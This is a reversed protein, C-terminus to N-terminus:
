QSKCECRKTFGKPMCSNVFQTCNGQPDEACTVVSLYSFCTPCSYNNEPPIKTCCQLTSSQQWKVDQCMPDSGEASGKFSCKSYSSALCAESCFAVCDNTARCGMTLTISQQDVVCNECEWCGCDANFVCGPPQITIDASQDESGRLDSSVLHDSKVADIRDANLDGVRIDLRPSGKNEDSCSGSMVIFVIALTLFSLPFVNSIWALNRSHIRYM